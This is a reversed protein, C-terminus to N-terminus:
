RPDLLFVRENWLSDIDSDLDSNVIAVLVHVNIHWVFGNMCFFILCTV